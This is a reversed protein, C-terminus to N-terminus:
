CDSTAISGLTNNTPPFTAANSTACAPLTFFRSFSTGFLPNVEKVEVDGGLPLVRGLVKKHFDFFLALILAEGARRTLRPFSQREIWCLVGRLEDASPAGPAPDAPLPSM